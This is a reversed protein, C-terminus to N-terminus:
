CSTTSYYINDKNINNTSNHQLYTKGNPVSHIDTLVYKKNQLYIQVSIWNFAEHKNEPLPLVCYTMFSDKLKLPFQTYIPISISSAILMFTINGQFIKQKKPDSQKSYSQVIDKKVTNYPHGEDQWM